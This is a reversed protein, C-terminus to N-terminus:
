RNGLTSIFNIGSNELFRVRTTSAKAIGMCLATATHEGNPQGVKRYKIEFLRIGLLLFMPNLVIIKEKRTFAFMFVLFVFLSAISQWTQYDFAFLGILFPLTYNLMDGRVPSVDLLVIEDSGQAKSFLGRMLIATALTCISSILLCGLAWYSVNMNWSVLGIPITASDAGIDRIFLILFLPYYSSSFILLEVWLKIGIEHSTKIIM